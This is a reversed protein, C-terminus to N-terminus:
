DVALRGDDSEEANDACSDHHCSHSGEPSSRSPQKSHQGRDSFMSIRFFLRNMCHSFGIPRPLKPQLALRHHQLGPQLVTSYNPKM